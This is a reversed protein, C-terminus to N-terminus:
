GTRQMLFWLGAHRSSRRTTDKMDVQRESDGRGRTPVKLQHTRPKEAMAKCWTLDPKASSPLVHWFRLGKKKQAAQGGLHTLRQQWLSAAWWMASSQPWSNNARTHDTLFFGRCLTIVELLTLTNIPQLLPPCGFTLTCPELSRSFLIFPCLRALRTYWSAKPAVCM